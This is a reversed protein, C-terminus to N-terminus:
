CSNRHSIGAFIMNGIQFPRIIFKIAISNNHSQQSIIRIFHVPCIIHGSPGIAHATRLLLTKSNRYREKYRRGELSIILKCRICGFRSSGRCSGGICATNNCFICIRINVRLQATVPVFNAVHDRIIVICQFATCKFLIVTRPLQNMHKISIRCGIDNTLSISLSELIQAIYATNCAVTNGTTGM